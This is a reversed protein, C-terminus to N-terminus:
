MYKKPDADFKPKCGGCCFVYHKGNHESRDSGDNVVFENGMVPCTAKTGPAPPADFETPAGNGTKTTATAKAEAPESASTKTESGCASAGLAIAVTIFLTIFLKKM